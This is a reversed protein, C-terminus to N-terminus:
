NEVLLTEVATWGGFGSRVDLVTRDPGVTVLMPYGFGDGLADIGMWVGYGRDGLVPSTLDFAQVWAGLTPIDVEDLPASLSPALLTIVEVEVGQDRMRALFDAEEAAMDQCPPCDVASVGIVLYRGTFDHLRVPEGCRDLFRGDPVSLGVEFRYAGGYAPPSAKPWGCAYFAPPTWGQFPDGSELGRVLAGEVTLEFSGGDPHAVGESTYLTTVTDAVVTVEGQDSLRSHLRSSRFWRGGGYGLWEVAEPPQSSIRDYCERGEDLSVDAVVHLGCDPCLWPASRDERAVYSRAYSCDVQGLAEAEEDFDVEWVIKGDLTVVESPPDLREAGKSDPADVCAAWLLLGWGGRYLVGSL